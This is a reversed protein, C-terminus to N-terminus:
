PRRTTFRITNETEEVSIEYSTLGSIAFAIGLNKNEYQFSESAYAPMALITLCTMLFCLLRKM